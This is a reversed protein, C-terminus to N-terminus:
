IRLEGWVVCQIGGERVQIASIVGTELRPRGRKSVHKNSRSNDSPSTDLPKQLQCKTREEEEDLVTANLDPFGPVDVDMYEGESFPSPAEHDRSLNADLSAIQDPELYSRASLTDSLPDSPCYGSTNPPSMGPYYVQNYAWM